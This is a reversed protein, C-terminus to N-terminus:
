LPHYLTISDTNEIKIGQKNITNLWEKLLMTYPIGNIDITMKQKPCKHFHSGPRVGKLKATFQGCEKCRESHRPTKPTAAQMAM